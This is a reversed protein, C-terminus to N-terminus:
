NGLGALAVDRDKQYQFKGGELGFSDNWHSQDQALGLRKIQDDMQAMQFQLARASEADGSQMAMSLLQAVKDRRSQIERGFLQAQIGALQQGKDEYGSAVDSEFSGSGQGGNLLGDAAAREAAAARRDQRTREALRTQAAMEPAISPDDATVPKGLGTLQQMIQDRIAQSFPSVAPAASASGGMVGSMAGGTAPASDNMGAQYWYANPSDEAGLVKYKQGNLSIENHSTGYKPDVWNGVNYGEAKMAALLGNLDPTGHQSQYQKIFDQPSASPARVFGSVSNPNPDDTYTNGDAGKYTRPKTNDVYPTTPTLGGGFPPPPAPPTTPGNKQFQGYGINQGFPNLQPTINIDTSPEPPPPTQTDADPDNVGIRRNLASRIPSPAAM